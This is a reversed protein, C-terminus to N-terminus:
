SCSKAKANAEAKHMAAAVQSSVHNAMVRAHAAVISQYLSGIKGPSMTNCRRALFYNQTLAAYNGLSSDQKPPPTTLKAVKVIKPESKPESKAAPKLALVPKQKPAIKVTTNVVATQAAVPAAPMVPETAAIVPAAPAAPAVVVPTPATATTSQVPAIVLPKTPDNNAQKAADLINMVSDKEAPACETTFGINHGRLMTAKTQAVTERNALIIEARAVLKSLTDRDLATLYNCKADISQAKALMEAAQEAPATAAFVNSTLVITSSFVLGRLFNHM